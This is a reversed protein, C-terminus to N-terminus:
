IAFRVGAMGARIDLFNYRIFYFDINYNWDYEDIQQSDSVLGPYNLKLHFEVSNVRTLNVFGTPIYKSPHLAFSYSYIPTKPQSEYFCYNSVQNFYRDDHVDERVQGDFLIRCNQLPSPGFNKQNGQDILPIESCRVYMWLSERFDRIQDFTYLSYKSDIQFGAVTNQSQTASAPTQVLSAEGHPGFLFLWEQFRDCEVSVSTGNITPSITMPTQSRLVATHWWNDQYELVRRNPSLAPHTTFNYVTNSERNDNRSITFLVNKTPQYLDTIKMTALNSVGMETIKRHQEILFSAATKSVLNREDQDLFVYKACLELDLDWTIQSTNGFFSGGDSLFHRIHENDANPRTRVYSQYESLPTSERLTEQRESQTKEWFKTDNLTTDDHAESYYYYTKDFRLVTYLDQIPRLQIELEVEHYQLAILPLSLAYNKSFWYDLPIYLTQEEIFSPANSFRNLTPYDGTYDISANKNSGPYELQFSSQPTNDPLNGILSDTIRQKSQSQFLEKKIHLLDGRITEIKNGAIYLTAHDLIRAGISDVWYFKQTDNSQIKPLRLKLFLKSLLDGNRPIRVRFTTTQDFSLSDNTSDMPIMIDELAFNTYRKFVFKFFSMQPNGNFYINEAGIASLQLLGGGM